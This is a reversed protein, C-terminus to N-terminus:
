WRNGSLQLTGILWIQRYLLLMPSETILKSVACCYTTHKCAYNCFSLHFLKLFPLSTKVFRVMTLLETLDNNEIVSQMNTGGDAIDTTHKHGDFGTSKTGQLVLLCRKNCHVADICQQEMRLYMAAIRYRKRATSSHMALKQAPLEPKATISAWTITEASAENVLRRPSSQSWVLRFASVAEEGRVVLLTVCIELWVSGQSAM